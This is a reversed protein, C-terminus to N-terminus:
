YPQYTSSTIRLLRSIWISISIVSLILGISETQIVFWKAAYDCELCIEEDSWDRISIISSWIQISSSWLIVEFRSWIISWIIFDSRSLWSRSYYSQTSSRSFTSDHESQEFILCQNIQDSRFFSDVIELLHSSWTSKYSILMKIKQSSSLWLLSEFDWM